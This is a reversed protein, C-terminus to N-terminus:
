RLARRWANHNTAHEFSVERKKAEEKLEEYDEFLKTYVEKLQDLNNRLLLLLPTIICPL